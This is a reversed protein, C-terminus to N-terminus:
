ASQRTAASDLSSNFRKMREFTDHNCTILFMNPTGAGLAHLPQIAEIQEWFSEADDAGTELPSFGYTNVFNRKPYILPVGEFVYWEDFGPVPLDSTAKVLPSVAIGDSIQWGDAIEKESPRYPGSDCSAIAVQKGVVLEPALALLDALSPDWDESWQIIWYGSRESILM